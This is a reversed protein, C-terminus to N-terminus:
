QPTFAGSENAIYIKSGALVYIISFPAFLDDDMLGDIGAGSTPLTQPDEDALIFADVVRRGTSTKGVVEVNIAKM